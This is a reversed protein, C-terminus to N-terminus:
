IRGKGGSKTRATVPLARLAEGTGMEALNEQGPQGPLSTNATEPDSRHDANDDM